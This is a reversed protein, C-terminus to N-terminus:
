PWSPEESRYPPRNGPLEHLRVVKGNTPAAAPAPAAPAPAAAAAAAAEDRERQAAVAEFLFPWLSRLTLLLLGGRKPLLEEIANGFAEAERGSVEVGERELRDWERALERARFERM